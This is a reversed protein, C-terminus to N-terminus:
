QPKVCAKPDKGTRAAVIICKNVGIAVKEEHSLCEPNEITVINLNHYDTGVTTMKDCGSMLLMMAVVACLGVISLLKKTNKTEKNSCKLRRKRAHMQRGRIGYRM